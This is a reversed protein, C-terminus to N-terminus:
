EVHCVQSEPKARGEFQEGVLDYDDEDLQEDQGRERRERKRKRRAEPDEDDGEGEDEEDVIFGERIQQM